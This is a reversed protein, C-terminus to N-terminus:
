TGDLKPSDDASQFLSACCARRYIIRFLHMASVYRDKKTSTDCKQFWMLIFGNNRRNIWIMACIKRLTEASKSHKKLVLTMTLAMTQFGYKRRNIWIMACIKRLTGASKSHKKLVLTMTSAM